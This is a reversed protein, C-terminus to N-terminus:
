SKLVGYGRGWRGEGLQLSVDRGLLGPEASQRSGPLAKPGWNDGLFGLLELLFKQLVNVIYVICCLRGIIM